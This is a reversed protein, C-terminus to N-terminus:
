GGTTTARRKILKAAMTFADALRLVGVPRGENTVVLSLTKYMILKHIAEGIAANQEVHEAIPHMADGVRIERARKVYTDFDQQWLDMQQMFSNIYRSTYGARAISADSELSSYKPELGALFAHHGLKGVISGDAGRVLVARHPHIGEPFKSQADDLAHLAEVLTADEDVLAYEDLPIMIDAVKNLPM